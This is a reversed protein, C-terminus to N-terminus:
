RAHRAQLVDQLHRHLVQLLDVPHPGLGRLLDALRRGRGLRVPVAAVGLLGGAHLALAHLRLAHGRLLRLLLAALGVLLRRRVRRRLRGRLIGSRRVAFRRVGFRHFLAPGLFGHGHGADLSRALPRLSPLRIPFTLTKWSALSRFRELWSTMSRSLFSPDSALVALLETSSSVASLSLRASLISASAARLRRM